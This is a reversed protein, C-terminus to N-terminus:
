RLGRALALTRTALDSLRLTSYGFLASVTRDHLPEVWRAPITQYGLFAGAWSGATAGISDTDLGAQVALGVTASFDGGGWLVAAALAGANNLTHVWSMAPYRNDLRDLCEDWSLHDRFDGLVTRVEVALRSTPPIHDISQSVSQEPSTATFATAILAAAWMEGYVGNARHSLIADKYALMAARRPNGPSVYGYVDARILAGIWERFPNHFAGVEDLPVERILNQYAAREATYLQYAPFRSLWEHAVDWTTFDPGYTELLHLGLVTYDIDDDRVGSVVRGRTLGEWFVFGSEAASTEDDVPVYDDLPYAGRAELYARLKARPWGFEVPKGLMNGAVRGAWAGRIRDALDSRGTAAVEPSPPLAAAIEDVGSGEFSTWELPPTRPIADYVALLAVDDAPDASDLRQRLNSVDHGTEEAQTLENRALGLPEQNFGFSREQASIYEM